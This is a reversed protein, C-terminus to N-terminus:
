YRSITERNTALYGAVMILLTGLIAPLLIKSTEPPRFEATQQTQSSTNTPASSTSTNSAPTTLSLALSIGIRIEPIQGIVIYTSTTPPPLAITATGRCVITLQQPSYVVTSTPSCWARCIGNKSITLTGNVLTYSYNIGIGLPAEVTAPFSSLTVLRDMSASLNLVLAQAAGSAVASWTIERGNISVNLCTAISASMSASSLLTLSAIALAAALLWRM